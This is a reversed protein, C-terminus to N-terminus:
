LVYGIAVKIINYTSMVNVALIGGIICMVAVTVGGGQRHGGQSHDRTLMFCGKLFAIFGALRIIGLVSPLVTSYGASISPTAYSYAVDGGGPGMFTVTMMNVTSPFFVLGVGVALYTLPQSFSANGHHHGFAKLKMLAIAFMCIGSVYSLAVIFQVLQPIQKHLQNLLYTADFFSSSYANAAYAPIALCGMILFSVASTLIKIRTRMRM